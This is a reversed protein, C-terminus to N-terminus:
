FSFLTFGYESTVWVLAPVPPDYLITTGAPAGLEISRFVVDRAPRPLHVIASGVPYYADVIFRLERQHRHPDLRMALWCAPWLSLPYALLAALVVAAIM